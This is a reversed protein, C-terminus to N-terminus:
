KIELDLNCQLILEILFDKIELETENDCEFAIGIIEKTSLDNLASKRREYDVARLREEYTESM